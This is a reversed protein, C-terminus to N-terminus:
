HSPFHFVRVEGLTFSDIYSREMKLLRSRLIFLSEEGFLCRQSYETRNRLNESDFGERLREINDAQKGGNKVSDDMLDLDIPGFQDIVLWLFLKSEWMGVPFSDLWLLQRLKLEKLLKSIIQYDLKTFM